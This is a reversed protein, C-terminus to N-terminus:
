PLFIIKNRYKYDFYPFNCSQINRAMAIPTDAPYKKEDTVSPILVIDLPVVLMGNAFHLLDM